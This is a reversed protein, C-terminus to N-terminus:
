KRGSTVVLHSRRFDMKNCKGHEKFKCIFKGFRGREGIFCVGMSEARTATALDWRKALERVQTKRLGALPFIAHQIKEEPVSSLYYTQDKTEDSSRVLKVRGESTWETGAYHGTALWQRSPPGHSNIPDLDLARDM